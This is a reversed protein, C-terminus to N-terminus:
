RGYGEKLIVIPPDDDFPVSVYEEFSRDRGLFSSCHKIHEPKRDAVSTAYNRVASLIDDHPIRERRRARYAKFAAFKDVKRPYEAWV